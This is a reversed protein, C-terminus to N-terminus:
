LKTATSAASDGEEVTKRAGRPKEKVGDGGQPFGTLVNSKVFKDTGGIL